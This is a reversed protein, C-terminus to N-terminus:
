LTLFSHIGSVPKSQFLDHKRLGTVTHANTGGALQLFGIRALIISVFSNTSYFTWLKCSYVPFLGNPRDRAAALRVAFAISERTAGRGIDGSMPRGDLKLPVFYHNMLILGPVILGKWDYRSAKSSVGAM